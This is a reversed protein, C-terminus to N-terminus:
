GVAVAVAVLRCSCSCSTGPAPAPVSFQSVMPPPDTALRVPGYRAQDPRAAHSKQHANKSRMKSRWCSAMKPWSLGLKLGVQALKLGVQCWSSGVQPWSSGVRLSKFCVAPSKFFRSCGNTKLPIKVNRCSWSVKLIM